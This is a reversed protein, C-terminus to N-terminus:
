EKVESEERFRENCIKLITNIRAITVRQMIVYEVIDDTICMRNFNGNLMDRENRMRQLENDTLYRM